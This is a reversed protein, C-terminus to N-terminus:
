QRCHPSKAPRARARLTYNNFYDLTRHYMPLITYLKCTRNLDILVACTSGGLAWFLRVISLAEAALGCRAACVAHCRCKM